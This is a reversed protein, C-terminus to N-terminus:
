IKKFKFMRIYPIKKGLFTFIKKSFPFYKMIKRIIISRQFETLYDYEHVHILKFRFKNALEIIQKEMIANRMSMYLYM